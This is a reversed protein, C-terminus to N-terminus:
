NRNAITDVAYRSGSQSRVARILEHLASMIQDPNQFRRPRNTVAVAAITCHSPRSNPSKSNATPEAPPNGCGLSLSQFGEVIASCVAHAQEPVTLVVFDDGGLHAILDNPSGYRASASAILEAVSLILEDGRGLGYKDNVSTLDALDVRIVALSSQAAIRSRLEQELPVRGPRGTLPDCYLARRVPQLAAAEMLSRVSVVGEYGGSGSLVLIDADLVIDQRTVIQRVVDRVCSTSQVRLVDTRMWGGISEAPMMEAAQAAKILPLFHDFQQRALLGVVSESEQVAISTLGSDKSFRRAAESLSTEVDVLLGPRALNGVTIDVGACRRERVAVREQIYERMSRTTGRVADTPKGLLYGQCYPIGLEILAALEAQTEAGEAVVAAGTSQAYQAVAKLLAGREGAVDINKVLDRDIKVFDPRLEAVARLSSYGAGADDIAIRFGQDRLNRIDEMLRPFDGVMQRETVEIVIDSPTLGHDRVRQAIPREQMAMAALGEADMNVFLLHRIRQEAASKLCEELCALDFWAVVRAKDAVRFMQGPRRILAGKPGRILAEYGIVRGDRLSVIPQFQPTLQRNVLIELLSNLQAINETLNDLHSLPTIPTVAFPDDLGTENFWDRALQSVFSRCLTHIELCRMQSASDSPFRLAVIRSDSTPSWIEVETPGMLAAHITSEVRPETLWDAATASETRIVLIGTRSTLADIIRTAPDGDFVTNAVPAAPLEFHGHEPQTLGM